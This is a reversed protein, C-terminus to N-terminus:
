QGCGQDKRNRAGEQAEVGFCAPNWFAAEGARQAFGLMAENSQAMSDQLGKAGPYRSHVGKGWGGTAVNRSTGKFSIVTLSPLVQSLHSGVRSLTPAPNQSENTM